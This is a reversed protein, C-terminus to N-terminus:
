KISRVQEYVRQMLGSAENRDTPSQEQPTGTEAEDAPFILIDGQSMRDFFGSPDLEVQSLLYDVATVEAHGIVDGESYEFSSDETYLRIDASKLVILSTGVDIGDIYGINILGREFNRRLLTASIPLADLIQRSVDSVGERLRDVGSRLSRFRELQRGTRGLFLRATIDIMDEGEEISFLIYYDSGAQRAMEFAIASSEVQIPEYRLEDIGDAVQFEIRNSGYLRDMVHQGILLDSEGHIVSSDDRVIFFTMSTTNRPASFQNVDWEVAVSDRLLDRYIELRDDIETTQMGLQDKMIELENVYRAYESRLRFLSARLSRGQESFPSLTLGRSLHYEAADFRNRQMFDSAKQFHYQALETRAPHDMQSEYEYLAIKEAFLRSFEDEPNAQLNVHLSRLAESGRDLNFQAIAKTYYLLSPQEIRNMDLREIAEIAQQYNGQRVLIQSLVQLAPYYDSKLGLAIQAHLQAQSVEGQNLYFQAAYVQVRPNQSDNQVARNVYEEATQLRGRQSAIYALALLVRRDEDTGALELGQLYFSEASVVDGIALSLEGLGARASANHPYRSLVQQFVQRAQDTEGLTILIRGFLTLSQPDSPSLSLARQAYQRAEDFEELYFFGRAIERYAESYNANAQIAEQFSRIGEVIFDDEYLGLGQQYAQRAVSSQTQGFLCPAVVFLLLLKLVSNRQTM